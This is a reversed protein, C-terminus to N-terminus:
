LDVILRARCDSRRAWRLRETNLETLFMMFFTNAATSDLFASTALVASRSAVAAKLLARLLPMRLRLVTERRMERRAARTLERDAM